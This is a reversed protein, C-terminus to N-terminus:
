NGTKQLRGQEILRDLADLDVFLSKGIKVFLHPYRNCHHWKYFTSTRFPLDRDNAKSVRLINM